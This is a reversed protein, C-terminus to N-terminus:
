VSTILAPFLFLISCNRGKFLQYAIILSLIFKMKIKIWEIKSREYLSLCSIQLESRSKFGPETQPKPLNNLKELSWNDWRYFLSLISGTEYPNLLKFSVMWIFYKTFHRACLLYWIFHKDDDITKSIKFRLIFNCVTKPWLGTIIVYWKFHAHPPSGQHDLPKLVGHKWQLPARNSGQDPFWSGAYHTARGFFFFLFLPCPAPHLGKVEMSMGLGQIEISCHEKFVRFINDQQRRKEITESSFDATM